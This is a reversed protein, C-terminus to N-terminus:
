ISPRRGTFLAGAARAMEPLLWLPPLRKGALELELTLDDKRDLSKTFRVGEANSANADLLPHLAATKLGAGVPTTKIWHRNAEFPYGPLSTRQGPLDSRFWQWSDFGGEAWLAALEAPKKSAFLETHWVEKEDASYFSPRSKALKANGIFLGERKGELFRSLCAVIGARDASIFALRWDMPQRGQKLTFAIDAFAAQNSEAALFDRLRLALARLREESRASFVLIDPGTQAPVARVPEPTPSESEPRSASHELPPRLSGSTNTPL